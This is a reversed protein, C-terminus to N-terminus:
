WDGYDSLDIEELTFADRVRTVVGLGTPTFMFTLSGGIAGGYPYGQSWCADLLDCSVGVPPNIRQEAVAKRNQEATWQCLQITQEDTLTFNYM